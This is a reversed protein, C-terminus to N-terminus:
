VPCVFGHSPHDSELDAAAADFRELRHRPSALALHAGFM